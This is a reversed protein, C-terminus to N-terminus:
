LASLLQYTRLSTHGVLPDIVPGPLSFGHPIAACRARCPISEPSVTPRDHTKPKFEHSAECSDCVKVAAKDVAVLLHAAVESLILGSLEM